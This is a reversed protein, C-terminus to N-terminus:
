QFVVSDLFPKFGERENDVLATDGTMKFFWTGGGQPVIAGLTSQGAQGRLFVVVGENGGIDRRGESLATTFAADDLPPNGIQENWRDLNARLGGVDGPFALVTMDATRGGDDALLLSGKRMSGLAQPQWHAPALMDPIPFADAQAAMGPLETMGLRARADDAPDAGDPAAHTHAPAADEKPVRYTTVEGSDCGALMVMFGATLLVLTNRIM